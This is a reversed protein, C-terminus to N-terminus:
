QDPQYKRTKVFAPFTQEFAVSKLLGCQLLAIAYTAANHEEEDPTLLPQGHPKQNPAMNVRGKRRHIPGEKTVMLDALSMLESM